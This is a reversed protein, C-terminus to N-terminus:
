QYPCVKHSPQVSTKQHWNWKSATKSASTSDIVHLSIYRNYEIVKQELQKRDNREIQSGEWQFMDFFKKRSEQDKTLDLEEKKILAKSNQHIEKLIWGQIPTHEEENGPNEPTPFWFIECNQENENFKMLENVYIHTDDLDQLLKLAAADTPRIQKTEEPKLIQLEALKTNNKITHPFDTLIAIRIKIRKNHAMALAPAVIINATEDFQPLPQVTGTVDNTKTTIVIEKVTTTQQPLLTQSMETMIQLLKPNCNKMEYTMALTMEVHPFNITGNATDLVAQHNRMFNLGKIPFSTESVIVFTDTFTYTGINFQIDATAIPQELQANACEIKFIPQPFEKIICNDSNM